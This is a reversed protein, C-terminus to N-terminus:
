PKDGRRVIPRIAIYLYCHAKGDKTYEVPVISEYDETYARHIAGVKQESWVKEWATRACVTPDGNDAFEAFKKYTGQSVASEMKQFFEASVGIISLDYDGTEDSSYHSYRAVPSIGQQAKRESDVLVPLKGSAIDQWIEYVKDMGAQTNNTRITVETLQYAM